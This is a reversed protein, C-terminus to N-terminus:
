SKWECNSRNSWHFFSQNWICFCVLEV